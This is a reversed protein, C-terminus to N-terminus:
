DRTGKGEAHLKHAPTDEMDKIMAKLEVMLLSSSLEELETILALLTTTHVQNLMTAQRKPTAARISPSTPAAKSDEKVVVVVAAM